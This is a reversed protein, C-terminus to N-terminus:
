RRRWTRILLACRKVRAEDALVWCLAGVAVVAVGVFMAAGVWGTALV